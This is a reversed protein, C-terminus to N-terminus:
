FGEGIRKDMDDLRGSLKMLASAILALKDEQSPSQTTASTSSSPTPEEGENSKSSTEVSTAQVRRPRRPEPCARSLHGTKNCNYCKRTEVRSADVDMPVHNPNAVPAPPRPVFRPMMTQTTTTTRTTTATTRKDAAEKERIREFAAYAKLSRMVWEDFNTPPTESAALNAYIRNPLGKCFRIEKDKESLGQIRAVLAQFESVYHGVDRTARAKADLECLRDLDVIAKDEPTADGFFTRLLIKFKEWTNVDVPLRGNNQAMHDTIHIAWQAAKDELRGLASIVRHKDSQVGSVAYYADCQSIFREVDRGKEGKYKGPKEHTNLTVTPTVPPPVASIAATVATQILAQLEAATLVINAMVPTSVRTPPPLPVTLSTQFVEELHELELHHTHLLPNLNTTTDWPYPVQNIRNPCPQVACIHYGSPSKHWDNWNGTSVSQYYLHPYVNCNAIIPM